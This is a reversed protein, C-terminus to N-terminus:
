RHASWGSPKSLYLGMTERRSCRIITSMRAVQTARRMPPPLSCGKSRSIFCLKRFLRYAYRSLTCPRRSNGEIRGGGEKCDVARQHRGLASLKRAGYRHVSETALHLAGGPWCRQDAPKCAPSKSHKTSLSFVARSVARAGNIASM